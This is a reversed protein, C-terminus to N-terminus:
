TCARGSFEFEWLGKHIITLVTKLIESELGTGCSEKTQRERNWITNEVTQNTRVFAYM